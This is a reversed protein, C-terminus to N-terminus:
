SVLNLSLIDANEGATLTPLLADLLACTHTMNDTIDVYRWTSKAEAYYEARSSWRAPDYVSTYYSFTLEYRLTADDRLSYSWELASQGEAFDARVADLIAQATESTPSIVIEGEFVDTTAPVAANVDAREDIVTTTEEAADADADKGPYVYLMMDTLQETQTLGAFTSEILKEPETALDVALACADSDRDIYYRRSLTRGSKLEYQLLVRYSDADRDKEDVIAQHLAVATDYDVDAGINFVMLFVSEVEDEDPIRREYGFVDLRVAGFVVCIAAALICWTRIRRLHFVRFSKRLLMEAGFYGIFSWLVVLLLTAAFSYGSLYVSQIFLAMAMGFCVSLGVQFVPRLPRFAILDGASEAPRLRLLLASIAALVVGAGAYVGYYWLNEVSDNFYRTRAEVAVEEVTTTCHQVLNVVPTLWYVAEEGALTSMGFVFHSLTNSLLYYIGMALFNVIVYFVPMALTNGTVVACLTALSFFLLGSAAGTGLLVALSRVDLGGICVEVIATLACTVFLPILTAAFGALSCTLFLGERRLPLTFYCNASRATFLWRWAFLACAGALLLMAIPLTSAIFSYVLERSLYVAGIQMWYTATSREWLSAPLMFFGAACGAAWLPWLQMLTRRFLTANFCSTKSRM